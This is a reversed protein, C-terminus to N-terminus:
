NILLKNTLIKFKDPNCKYIYKIIAPIMIVDAFIWALPDGLCVIIFSLNSATSNIVGGNILPPIFMCILVRGVLEGIGALFPWLPKEIGQLANRYIFLVMLTPYFPLITYLYLNGYKIVDDNIKDENLFLHMYFGNITFLFGVLIIFGCLILGIIIAQNIGKKIRDYKKAGYNQGCYSLMATGLANIICMLFNNLKYGVGIGNTAPTLNVVLGAPTKDFAVVAAQMVIIGIGLVSFQFALPLGLKFHNLIYNFSFHFDEKKIRLDKYRLFTYIFCGIFAIFQSVVTAFAAGFVAWKFVVIFLLDLGVNLITSCVLFIFPVFSDGIARLIGLMINYFLVATTGIVIILTYLYAAEYVENGSIDIDSPKIDMWLLIPKILFIFVITILIGIIAGFILQILISKRADVKNNEGIKKSVVVSFGSALGMAFQLSLFTVANSNNVGAVETAKLFQGCIISDTLTYVQQFLYSLVIPIFFILITKWIKGQTLDIPKFLNKFKSLINM